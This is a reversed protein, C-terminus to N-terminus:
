KKTSAEAQTKRIWELDVWLMAVEELPLDYPEKNLYYRILSFM